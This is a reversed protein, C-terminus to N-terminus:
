YHGIQGVCHCLLPPASGSQWLRCLYASMTSHTSLLRLRDRHALARSVVSCYCLVVCGLRTSKAPGFPKIQRVEQTSWPHRSHALIFPHNTIYSKPVHWIQTVISVEFESQKWQFFIGGAKCSETSEMFKLAANFHLVFPSLSFHLKHFFCLGLCCAPAIKKLDYGVLLRVQRTHLFFTM